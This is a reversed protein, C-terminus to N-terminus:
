TVALLYKILYRKYEVIKCIISWTLGINVMDKDARTNKITWLIGSSSLFAGVTAEQMRDAHPPDRARPASIPSLSKILM